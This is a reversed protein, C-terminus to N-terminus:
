PHRRQHSLIIKACGFIPTLLNRSVALMNRHYLKETHAVFWQFVFGDQDGTRRPTDTPYKGQGARACARINGDMMPV